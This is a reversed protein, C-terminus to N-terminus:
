ALDAQMPEGNVYDQAAERAEKPTIFPGAVKRPAQTPTATTYVMFNVDDGDTYKCIRLKHDTSVITTATERNWALLKQRKADSQAKNPMNRQIKQRIQELADM